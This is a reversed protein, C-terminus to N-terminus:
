YKKFRRKDVDVDMWGDVWGSTMNYSAIMQRDADRKHTPIAALWDFVNVMIRESQSYHYRVFMDVNVIDMMRM